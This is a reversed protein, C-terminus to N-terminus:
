EMVVSANQRRYIDNDKRSLEREIQALKKELGRVEKEDGSATRIQQELQRKKEKLRKIEREAKDTNATCKEVPKGSNDGKADARRGAAKEDDPSEGNTKNRGKGDAYDTKKPGDFIIKRSGDADQGIRYLGTPKAGSKESSIYEDHPKLAKDPIPANNTEKAKESENLSRKERMQGADNINFHNCSGNIEMSM